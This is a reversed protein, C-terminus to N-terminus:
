ILENYEIIWEVPIPCQVELYREIAQIVYDLRQEMFIKKPELGIPPETLHTSGM